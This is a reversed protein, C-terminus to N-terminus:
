RGKQVSNAGKHRQPLREGPLVEYIAGKDYYEFHRGFLERFRTVNRNTEAIRELMFSLHPWTLQVNQDRRRLMFSKWNREADAYFGEEDLGSKGVLAEDQMFLGWWFYRFGSGRSIQPHWHDALSLSANVGRVELLSAHEPLFIANM